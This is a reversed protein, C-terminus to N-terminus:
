DHHTRKAWSGRCDGLPKDIKHLMLPASNDLYICWLQRGEQSPLSQKDIDTAWVFINSQNKLEPENYVWVDHPSHVQSVEVFIYNKGEAMHAKEFDKKFFNSRMPRDATFQLARNNNKMWGACLIVIVLLHLALKIQPRKIEKIRLLTSLLLVHTVPMLIATYDRLDYIILFLFFTNSFFLYSILKHSIGITDKYLFIGMILILFSFVGFHFILYKTAKSINYSLITKFDKVNKLRIVDEYQTFYSNVEPRTQKVHERNPLLSIPNNKQYQLSWLTNPHVLPDKTTKINYFALSFSTVFTFLLFAMATFKKGHTNKQFYLYPILSTLFFVFGEGGRSQSLIFIGGYYCLASWRNKVTFAFLSLAAALAAVIASRYFNVFSAVYFTNFSILILISYFIGFSREKRFFLNILSAYLAFIFAQIYLDQNFLLRGLAIPLSLFPWNRSVWLPDNLIMPVEFIEAPSPAPFALKGALFSKVQFLITLEDSNSAQHPFYHIYFLAYALSLLFILATTSLLPLPHFFIQKLRQRLYTM